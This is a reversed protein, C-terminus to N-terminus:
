PLPDSTRGAAPAAIQHNDKTSRALGRTRKRERAELAIGLWYAGHVTWLYLPSVRALPRLFHRAFHRQLFAAWLSDGQDAYLTSYQGLRGWRFYRRAERLLSDVAVHRTRMSDVFRLGITADLLRNRWHVSSGGSVSPGASELFFARQPAGLMELYARTLSFNRCDFRISKGDHAVYCRFVAEALRSEQYTLWGGWSTCAELHHWNPGVLGGPVPQQSYLKAQVRLWEADVVCDSDTFAYVDACITRLAHNLAGAQGPVGDNMIVTVQTRTSEDLADTVSRRGRDDIVVIDVRKWATGRHRAEILSEVCRRLPARDDDLRAPVLVAVISDKPKLSGGM